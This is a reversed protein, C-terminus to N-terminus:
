IHNIYSFFFTIINKEFLIELKLNNVVFREKGRESVVRYTPSLYARKIRLIPASFVMQVLKWSWVIKKALKAM